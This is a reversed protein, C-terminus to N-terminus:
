AAEEPNKPALLQAFVGNAGLYYHTLVLAAANFLAMRNQEGDWVTRKGPLYARFAEITRVIAEAVEHRTRAGVARFCAKIEHRGFVAVDVGRSMALTQIARCLNAIRESRNSYRPEFAELAVTEPMFKGFLGDVKELCAINKETKAVSFGWDLPALPGDFVVWGMGRATPYVALVRPLQASMPTM